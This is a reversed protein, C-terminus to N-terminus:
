IFTSKHADDPFSVEKLLVVDISYHMKFKLFTLKWNFLNYKNGVNLVSDPM